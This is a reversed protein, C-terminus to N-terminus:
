AEAKAEKKQRAQGAVIRLHDSQVLTVGAIKANKDERNANEEKLKKKIATKDISVSVCGDILEKEEPTIDDGMERGIVLNCWDKWREKDTFSFKDKVSVDYNKYEDPVEEENDIRLSPTSNQIRAVYAMGDIRKKKNMSVAQYTLEKTLSIRSNVAEIQKKLAILYSDLGSLYMAVKDIKGGVINKAQEHLELLDDGVSGGQSEIEAEIAAFNEALEMLSYKRSVLEM